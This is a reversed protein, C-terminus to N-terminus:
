QLYLLHLAIPRQQKMLPDPSHLSGPMSAVDNRANTFNLPGSLTSVTTCAEKAVMNLMVAKQHQFLTHAQALKYQQNAYDQNDISM